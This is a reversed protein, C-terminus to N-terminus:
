GGSGGRESALAEFASLVTAMVSRNRPTNSDRKMPSAASSRPSASVGFFRSPIAVYAPRLPPSLMSNANSEVIKPTAVSPKVTVSLAM